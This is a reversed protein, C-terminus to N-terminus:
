DAAFIRNLIARTVAYLPPVGEWPALAESLNEDANLPVDSTYYVFRAKVDPSVVGTETASILQRAFFSGEM